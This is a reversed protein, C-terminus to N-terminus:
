AAIAHSHLAHVMNNEEYVSWMVDKHDDFIKNGWGRSLILAM